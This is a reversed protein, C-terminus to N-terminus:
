DCVFANNNDDKARQLLMNDRHEMVTKEGESGVIKSVNLAQSDQTATNHLSLWANGTNDQKFM